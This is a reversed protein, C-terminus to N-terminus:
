SRGGMGRMGEQCVEDEDEMEDGEPEDDMIIGYGYSGLARLWLRGKM